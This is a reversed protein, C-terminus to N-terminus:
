YLCIEEKKDPLIMFLKQMKPDFRFASFKNGIKLLFHHYGTPSSDTEPIIEWNYTSAKTWKLLNSCTEITFKKGSLAFMFRKDGAKRDAKTLTGCQYWYKTSDNTLKQILFKKTITQSFSLSSWFVITLLTLLKILTM